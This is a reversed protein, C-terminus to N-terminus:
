SIMPTYNRTRYLLVKNIKIYLLKYRSLRLSGTRGKGREAKAVVCNQERHRHTQKQKPLYAKLSSKKWRM